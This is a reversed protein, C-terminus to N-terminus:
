NRNEIQEYITKIRENLIKDEGIYAPIGYYMSNEVHEELWDNDLDGSEVENIIIDLEQPDPIGKDQLVFWKGKYDILNLTTM